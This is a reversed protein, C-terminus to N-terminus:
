HCPPREMLKVMRHYDRLANYVRFSREQSGSTISHTGSSLRPKDPNNIRPAWAFFMASNATFPQFPTSSLQSPITPNHHTQGMQLPLNFTTEVRTATLWWITQIESGTCACVYVTYSIYLLSINNYCIDTNFDRLCFVLIHQVYNLTVHKSGM